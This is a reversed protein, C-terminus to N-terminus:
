DRFISERYGPESDANSQQPETGQSLCSPESTCNSPLMPAASGEVPQQVVPLLYQELKWMGHVVDSGQTRFMGGGTFSTEVGSFDAHGTLAERHSYERARATPIPQEATKQQIRLPKFRVKGKMERSLRIPNLSAATSRSAGDVIDQWESASVWSLPKGSADDYRVSEDRIQQILQECLGKSVEELWAPVITKDSHDTM